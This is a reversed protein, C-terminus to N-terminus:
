AFLTLSKERMARPCVIAVSLHFVVISVTPEVSKNLNYQLLCAEHDGGRDKQGQSGGIPNVLELDAGGAM